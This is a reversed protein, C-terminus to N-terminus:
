FYIVNKTLYNSPMFVMFVNDPTRVTHIMHTVFSVWFLLSGNGKGEGEGRSKMPVLLTWSHPMHNHYLWIVQQHRLFFYQNNLRSTM